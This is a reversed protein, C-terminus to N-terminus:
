SPHDGYRSEPARGGEAVWTMGVIDAIRLMLPSAGRLQFRVGLRRRTLELVRLGAGDCFTLGTIDLVVSDVEDGVADLATALLPATALDLEGDVHVTVGNGRVVSRISCLDTSPDM